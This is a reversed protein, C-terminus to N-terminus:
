ELDVKDTSPQMGDAVRDIMGPLLGTYWAYAIGGLFALSAWLKWNGM